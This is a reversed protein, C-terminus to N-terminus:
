CLDWSVAGYAPAKKQGYSRYRLSSLRHGVRKELLVDDGDGIQRAWLQLQHHLGGALEFGLRAVIQEAVLQDGAAEEFCGRARTQGELCGSLAQAAGDYPKGIGTVGREGLLYVSASETRM